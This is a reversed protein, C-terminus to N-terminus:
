EPLEKIGLLHMGLQVFEEVSESRTRVMLYEEYTRLWDALDHSLTRLLQSGVEPHEKRLANLAAHDLCLLVSQEIVKFTVPAPGPDILSLAGIFDGPGITGLTIDKSGVSMSLSVRGEWVLYFVDSHEGFRYLTEGASADVRTLANLLIEAQDAEFKELLAAFRQKFGHATISV